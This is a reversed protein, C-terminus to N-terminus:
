QTPAFSCLFTALLHTLCHSPPIKMRPWAVRSSSHKSIMSILGNQEHIQHHCPMHIRYVRLRCPSRACSREGRVTATVEPRSGNFLAHKRNRDSLHDRASHRPLRPPGGKQLVLSNADDRQLWEVAPVLETVRDGDVFREHEVSLARMAQETTPLNSYQRPVYQTPGPRLDGGPQEGDRMGPWKELPAHQNVDGRRKPTHAYAAMSTSHFRSARKPAWIDREAGEHTGSVTFDPPDHKQIYQRTARTRNQIYAGAYNDSNQQRVEAKWEEAM